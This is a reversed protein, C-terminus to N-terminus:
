CRNDKSHVLVQRNLQQPLSDLKAVEIDSRILNTVSDLNTGVSPAAEITNDVEPKSPEMKVSFFLSHLLYHFDHELYM